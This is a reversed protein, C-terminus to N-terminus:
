ETEQKVQAMDVIAFGFREIVRSIKGADEARTM